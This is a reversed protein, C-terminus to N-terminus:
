VGGRSSNVHSENLIMSYVIFILLLVLLAPTVGWLFNVLMTSDVKPYVFVFRSLFISYILLGVLSGSRFTINRVLSFFLGVFFMFFPAALNFNAYAEGIAGPTPAGSGEPVYLDKIMLGVSSPYFGFYGGVSNRIWDLYTAGLLSKGFDFTEFIIALQQLDAVNGSGVMVGIIDFDSINFEKGIFFYNSAIRLFYIIFAFSVIAVVAKIGLKERSPDYVSVFVIQSILFTIALTIRGQTLTMLVGILSFAWFVYGVRGTRLTAGLLWLFIGAYYFHYPLTTISMDAILHRFAQFRIILDLMGGAAVKAVWFWYLLGVLLLPIVFFVYVREYFFMFDSKKAKFFRVRTRSFLLYGFSFMVYCIMAYLIGFQMLAINQERALGLFDLFKGFNQESRSYYFGGFVYGSYM